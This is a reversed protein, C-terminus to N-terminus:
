EQWSSTRWVGLHEIWTEGSGWFASRLRPDEAFLMEGFRGEAGPPEAFGRLTVWRPVLSPNTTFFRRHEIWFAGDASRQAYAGRHVQMLGGAAHEEPTVPQRLLAMQILHPHEALVDRLRVLDVLRIFRFDDELHFVYECGSAAEWASRVAGAFGRREAHHVHEFSPFTTALLKGYAQDGSDDVMVRRVWPWMVYYNLSQLTAHLFDFRGDTIVVLAITGGADM